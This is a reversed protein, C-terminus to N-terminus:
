VSKDASVFQERYNVQQRLRRSRGGGESQASDKFIREAGSSCILQYRTSGAGRPDDISAQHEPIAAERDCYEDRDNKTPSYNTLVALSGDRDFQIFQQNERHLTV